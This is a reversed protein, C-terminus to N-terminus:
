IIVEKLSHVIGVAYAGFIFQSISWCFLLSLFYFLTYGFWNISNIPEKKLRKIMRVFVEWGFSMLIIGFFPLITVKRIFAANDEGVFSVLEEGVFIAVIIITFSIVGIIISSKSFSEKRLGEMLKVLNHQSENNDEQIPLVVAVCYAMQVLHVIAFILWTVMSPIFWFLVFLAMVALGISLSIQTKGILHLGLGPVISAFGVRWPLIKDNEINSISTTEIEKEM